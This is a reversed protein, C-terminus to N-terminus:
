TPPMVTEDSYLTHWMLTHVMHIMWVNAMVGCTAYVCSVTMEIWIAYVSRMHRVCILTHTHWMCWLTGYTHTYCMHRKLRVSFIDIGWLDNVRTGHSTGIRSMVCYQSLRARENARNKESEGFGRERTNCVCRLLNEKEKLLSIKFTPNVLEYFRVKYRSQARVETLDLHKCRRWSSM